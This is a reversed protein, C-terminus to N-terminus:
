LSNNRTWVPARLKDRPRLVRRGHDILAVGSASAKSILGARVHQPTCRTATPQTPKTRRPMAITIAPAAPAATTRRRKAPPKSAADAVYRVLKWYIDVDPDEPVAASGDYREDVERRRKGLLAPTADRGVHNADDSSLTQSVDNPSSAVYM